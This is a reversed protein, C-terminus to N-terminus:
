DPAGYRLQLLTLAKNSASASALTPTVEFSAASFLPLSDLPNDTDEFVVDLRDAAAINGLYSPQDAIVMARKRISEDLLAKPADRYVRGNMKVVVHSIPDATQAFFTFQELFDRRDLNTLPLNGAASYPVILRAWKEINFMPKGDKMSGLVNDYEAYVSFAHLTTVNDATNDKAALPVEVQFTKLQSGDPWATPWAFLDRASYGPRWDQYFYIPVRYTVTDGAKPAGGTDTGGTVNIGYAAGYSRQIADLEAITFERQTKGNLKVKCTSTLDFIDGLVPATSSTGSRKVTGILWLVLYRVGITLDVTAKSLSGSGPTNGAISVIQELIKQAM